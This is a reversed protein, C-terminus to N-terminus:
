RSEIRKARGTETETDNSTTCKLYKQGTDTEIDTVTDTDTDTERDTLIQLLASDDWEAKVAGKRDSGSGYYFPFGEGEM